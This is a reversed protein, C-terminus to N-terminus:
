HTIFATKWEDGKRIRINNYGWRLDLKTFITSQSLSNVLDNIRPIPYRNKTTIENLKRYDQVLRLGGDKKKVFFVPAAIPSKSKRIYGKGEHEQIWQDLSNREEPSLSYLKAPRPLTMGNEFEIAHDYPKRAPMRESKTKSFVDGYKHYEAPVHTKWYTTDNDEFKKESIRDITEQILQTPKEVWNIAPNNTDKEGIDELGKLDWLLSNDLNNAEKRSMHKKRANPACHEPCRTYRWEGQRWDIEPNHLRLYPMGLIVEKKGLNTLYLKHTSKHDGINVYARVYEKIQGAKNVTGDVNYVTHPNAITYTVLNNSRAFSKDIFNASAGSDILAETQAKVNFVWLTVPLTFSSKNPASSKLVNDSGFSTSSIISPGQDCVTM